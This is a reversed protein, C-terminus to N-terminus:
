EGAEKKGDGTENRNVLCLMTIDDFQPADGVFRDIEEKVRALTEQASAEPCRNLAQLMRDTGFLNNQADTAEAVGDTYVFIAEGPELTLEYERYGKGHICGSEDCVVAKTGTTGVDLGIVYRM